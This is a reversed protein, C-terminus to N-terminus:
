PPDTELTVLTAFAGAIAEAGLLRHAAWNETASPPRVSFTPETQSHRDM